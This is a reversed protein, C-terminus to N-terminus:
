RHYFKKLLGAFSYRDEETEKFQEKEWRDMEERSLEKLLTISGQAVGLLLLEEGVQVLLIMSNGRPDLPVREKVDVRGSGMPRSMPRLGYRIFVYAMVCVLLVVFLVVFYDWFSM